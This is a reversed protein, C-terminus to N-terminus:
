TFIDFIDFINFIDRSACLTNISVTHHLQVGGLITSPCVDELTKKKKSSIKVPIKHQHIGFSSLSNQKTVSDLEDTMVFHVM